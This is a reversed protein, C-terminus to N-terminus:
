VSLIRDLGCAELQPKGAAVCVAQEAILEELVPALALLEAPTTHVLETYLKRLKEEGVGCFWRSEAASVSEEEGRLPDLVSVSGLIYGTLDPEDACFTRLYAPVARM